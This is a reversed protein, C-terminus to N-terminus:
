KKVRHMFPKGRGLSGEDPKEFNGSSMEGCDTLSTRHLEIGPSSFSSYSFWRKASLLGGASLDKLFANESPQKPAQGAFSLRLRIAASYLHYRPFLGDKLLSFPPKKILAPFLLLLVIRLM